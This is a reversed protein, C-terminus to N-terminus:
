DLKTPLPVDEWDQGGLAIDREVFEWVVVKKGELIEPNTSLKRRVDTSAGGDSVMADVPSKLALALHSIFGASGPLLRKTGSEDKQGPATTASADGLSQPEPFQYIRCFSDGLVLVSTGQGPFRYTDPRDSATPVLLGLAPDLVQDCEVKEPPFAERLGPIQMMYLIDGWRAVSVRQTQFEKAAEPALKLDHLQSAVVQAALQAGQPTWHTDRALYLPANTKGERDASRASSFTAFLDVTPVGERRLAEILKRTPSQFDQQKGIARCTVQDPYVSPKGPVPVVILAIGREKLQDRFRVIAREVNERHSRNPPQSGRGAPSPRPSPSRSSEESISSEGEGKGKGRPLSNTSNFERMSGRFRLLRRSDAGVEGLESPASERGSSRSEHPPSEVLYRLDPRYFLWQDRGLVGKAGTDRLTKFLLQQVEPRLKQQFWSKEELTHEFQRLNKATPRYRFVDTFQVRELRALELCTQTVPVAAIVVLFGVVLVLESKRTSNPM